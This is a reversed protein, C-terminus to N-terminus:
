GQSFAVAYVWVAAETHTICPIYGLAERMGPLREIVSGCGLGEINTSESSFPVWCRELNIWSGSRLPLLCYMCLCPPVVPTKFSTLSLGLLM